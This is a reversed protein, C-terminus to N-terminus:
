SLNNSIVTTGDDVDIGDRNGIFVNESIESVGGKVNLGDDSNNAFFRKIEARKANEITLAWVYRNGNVFFENSNSFECNQVITKDSPGNQGGDIILGKWFENKVGRFSM